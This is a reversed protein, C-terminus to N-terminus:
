FWQRFELIARHRDPGYGSLERFAADTLTGPVRIILVDAPDGCFGYYHSIAPEVYASDGPELITDRGGQWVLRVPSSGYNYAYEHLHHRFHDASGAEGLVKMAFGRLGPQHKTRALPRLLAVVNGSDPFRREKASGYQVVVEENPELPSVLLDSPRVGIVNAIHRVDDLSPLENGSVISAARDFSMVDPMTLMTALAEASVSEAAAYRMLIAHFASAPNRLDGCLGLAIAPEIRGLARLAPQLEGGYTVAITLGLVGSNRSAFSHPVYPAMYTSDGTTLRASLRRGSSVWYANVDGVFFTLQHLLHGNNYALTMNDPDDDEVVHLPRVTEPRFPALRSMATDRYEMYPTLVGARNKRTFVRSSRRSEASRMITVGGDTDPLDVWVDSLAIPYTAVMADLVQRATPLDAQGAFVRRIVEPDIALDAALAEATRKLNNAEAFLRAGMQRRYAAVEKSENIEADVSM